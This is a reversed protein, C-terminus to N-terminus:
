GEFRPFSDPCAGPQRAASTLESNWRGAQWHKKYLNELLAIEAEQVADPDRAIKCYETIIVSLKASSSSKTTMTKEVAVVRAKAEQEIAKQRAAEAAALKKTEEASLTPQSTDASSQTPQSANDSSTTCASATLAVSCAVAAFVM